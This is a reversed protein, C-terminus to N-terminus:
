AFQQPCNVKAPGVVRSSQTSPGKASLLPDSGVAKVREPERAPTPGCNGLGNKTRPMM